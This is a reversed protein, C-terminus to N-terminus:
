SKQAFFNVLAQEEKEKMEIQLENLSSGSCMTFPTKQLASIYDISSHYNDRMFHIWRMTQFLDFFELRRNVIRKGKAPQRLVKKMKKYVPTDPVIKKLDSILSEDTSTYLIEYWCKLKEFIIPHYLPHKLERAAIDAQGKGTGFPVRDSERDILQVPHRDGLFGFPAIKSAKNILYFDEGAMRDPFGHSKQYAERHIVILSGITPLPNPANAYILGLTYYRLGLEYIQLADGAPKHIYPCIALGLHSPIEKLYDESFRADGDTSWFYPYRLFGEDYLKCLLNMGQHRAIGVGQKEQLPFQIRDLILIDLNPYEIHFLDERIRHNPFAFLFNWLKQNDDKVKQSASQRHNLVVVLVKRYPLKALSTLADPLYLFEECAPIMIGREWFDCKPRLIEKLKM